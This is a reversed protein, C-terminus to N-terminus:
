ENGEQLAVRGAPTNGLPCNWPTCHGGTERCAFGSMTRPSRATVVIQHECGRLDAGPHTLHETLKM